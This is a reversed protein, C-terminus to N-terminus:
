TNNICIYSNLCLLKIFCLHEQGGLRTVKIGLIWVISSGLGELQASVEERTSFSMHASVEERTSRSTHASVEKCTSYCSQVM